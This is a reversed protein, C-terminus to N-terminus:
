SPSNTDPTSNRGQSKLYDSPTLDTAKKFARQFSSKASFGCQQAIATLTFKKTEGCQIRYKVEEVRYSNIFDSFNQNLQVNLVHSIEYVPYGLASAVDAQRLESNLWPKEEVMYTLLRDRIENGKEVNIIVASGSTQRNKLDNLQTTVRTRIRQIYSRTWYLFLGFVLLGILVIFWVTEYFYPTIDVLIEVPTPTWIGDNNSAKIKLVYKGPKLHQYVVEPNTEARSWNRDVGELFFSYQNRGTSLYNLAAVRFGLNNNSKGRIRVWYKGPGIKSVFGLTDADFRNGNIMLNTFKVPPIRSNQSSRDNLFSVLGKENSWWLKGDRDRTASEPCFGIGTLGDELGFVHVENKSNVRFLGKSSGIWITGFEDEVLSSPANEPLGLEKTLWRQEKLNSDLKLVGGKNYCFWSNGKTDVFVATCQFRYSKCSEPQIFKRNSISFYCVGTKTGIWIKDKGDSCLSFVENSGTTPASDYRVLSKKELNYRYLGSLTAIWISGRKDTCFQYITGAKFTKETSFDSLHMSKKDYVSVGGGYTGVLLLDPKGPYPFITTLIDSRFNRTRSKLRNNSDLCLLLGNRTGVYKEGQPTLYLSRINANSSNEFEITKFQKRKQLNLMHVGSDFTGIWLVGTAGGYLAYVTTSALTTSESFKLLDFTVASLRYVGAHDTGVVLNASDDLVLSLISLGKLKEIKENGVSQFRQILLGQQTGIYLVHNSCLLVRINQIPWESILKGNSNMRFLGARGATWLAGLSDESLCNLDLDTKTSLRISRTKLTKGDLLYLGKDTAFYTIGKSTTLVTRVDITPNDFEVPSMLNLHIDYLFAGWSTGIVLKGERIESISQVAGKLPTKFRKAFNIIQLGDYSDLGTDTGIWMMGQSDKFLVRVYNSSLGLEITLNTPNFFQAHVIWVSVLILGVVINLRRRM